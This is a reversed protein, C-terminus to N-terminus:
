TMTHNVREVGDNGSPNYANTRLKHAGLLKYVATTLQTYLQLRNDSLLTSPYGWLPIFHNVLINTTEEATFEAATVVFMDARRTVHDTFLLIYSNGRATTPLPGFYDVSVFVGPSNPLLTSLVYLRVTQRSTNRAQCKLCRQVWWKTCDEM